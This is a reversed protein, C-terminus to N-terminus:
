PVFSFAHKYLGPSLRKLLFLVKSQFETIVWNFLFQLAVCTAKNMDKWSIEQIRIGNISRTLSFNSFHRSIGSFVDSSRFTLVNWQLLGSNTQIIYFWCKTYSTLSKVNVYLLGRVVLAQSNTAVVSSMWEAFRWSLSSIQKSPSMYVTRKQM